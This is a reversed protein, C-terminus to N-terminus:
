VVVNKSPYAYLNPHYLELTYHLKMQMSFIKKKSDRAFKLFNKKYEEANEFPADFSEGSLHKFKINHRQKFCRLWGDSAQFYTLRDPYNKNFLENFELAAAKIMSGSIPVNISRLREFWAWVANNIEENETKRLKRCRNISQNEEYQALM